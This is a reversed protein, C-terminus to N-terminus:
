QQQQQHEVKQIQTFQQQFDDLSRCLIYRGGAKTLRREFDQQNESQVGKTGKVEVGIYRGDRVIVIDPSGIAGFRYLHGRDDRFGGSNNRYHFVRNAALFDLIARQVDSEKELPRRNM